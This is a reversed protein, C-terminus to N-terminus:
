EADIVEALCPWGRWVMALRPQQDSNLGGEVGLDQGLAGCARGLTGCAYGSRGRCTASLTILSRVSASGREENDCM